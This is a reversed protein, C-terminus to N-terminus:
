STLSKIIKVLGIMLVVAYLYSGPENGLFNAVADLMAETFDIMPTM